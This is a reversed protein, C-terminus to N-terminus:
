VQRRDWAFWAASGMRWPHRTGRHYRLCTKPGHHLSNQDSQCRCWLWIFTLDGASQGSALTTYSLLAMPPFQQMM